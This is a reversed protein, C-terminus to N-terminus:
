MKTIQWSNCFSTDLLKTNPTKMKPLQCILSCIQCLQWATSPKAFARDRVDGLGGHGRAIRVKRRAMYAGDIAVSVGRGEVRRRGCGISTALSEMVLVPGGRTATGDHGVGDRLFERWAGDDAASRSWSAISSAVICSTARTGPGAFFNVAHSPVAVARWMFFIRM